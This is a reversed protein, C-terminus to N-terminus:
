TPRSRGNMWAAQYADLREIVGKANHPTPFAIFANLYNQLIMMSAEEAEKMEAKTMPKESM